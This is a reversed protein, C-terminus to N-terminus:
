NGPPEASGGVVGTGIATGLQRTTNSFGSAAGAASPAIFHTGMTIMPATILGAGLGTLILPITFSTGTADLSAFRTLLFVGTAMSLFGAIGLYKGNMRNVLIGAVPSVLMLTVANPVIAVGAELPTLGRVSQLFILLTFMMGLLTFTMCISMINSVSFNRDRFLSLPLLPEELRTEWVVFAILLVACALFVTPISVLGAQVPGVDLSGINSIRGWSYRQGEILGFVGAFLGATSLVVGVWDLRHKRRLSVEPM